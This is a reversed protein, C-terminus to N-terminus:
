ATKAKGNEAGERPERQREIWALVDELGGVVVTGGAAEERAVFARQAPSLKDKGVKVEVWFSELWPKRTLQVYLDPIGASGRLRHGQSTVNVVGGLYGVAQRIAEVETKHTRAGMMPKGGRRPKTAKHSTGQSGM